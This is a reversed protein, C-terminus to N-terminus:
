TTPLARHRHRRKHRGGRPLPASLRRTPQSPEVVAALYGTGTLTPDLAAAGLAAITALILLAGTATSTRRTSNM